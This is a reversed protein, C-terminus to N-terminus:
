FATILGSAYLLIKLADLVTVSNSSNVDAAFPLLETPISLGSCWRLLMLADVVSVVGDGNLDGFIIITYTEFVENTANDIVDVKTGTGLNENDPTFELRFDGNLQVCDNLFEAKTIGTNLGYIYEKDNDIVCGSNEVSSLIGSNPILKLVPRVGYCSTATYDFLFFYGNYNNVIGTYDPLFYPTRLWWNSNGAYPNGDNVYLGSSKSFDTGQAMRASDNAGYSASFGYATNIIEANSLLFLKDGGSSKIQTKEASSFATNFFNGNLWNRLPSLEWNSDGIAKSDLIKEALVLLEGGNNSLVRWEIPEFKFWYATNIFYGNDDQYSSGNPMEISYFSPTYQTFYVRKYKSGGYEVTNDASLTCLNLAAIIETQTVKTQPYSGFTIIDGTVYGNDIGTAISLPDSAASEGSVNVAKVTFSYATNQALGTVTYTTGTIPTANVKTSGNYVNYGTAETVADWSLDVTNATKSSSTLGTPAAPILPISTTVDVADSAASEGGANIAKVTFSYSTNQELGEVTYTTSTIPAANVKIAGKYVNYGISGTVADWSLDVTNATKNPSTLGVPANTLTTLALPSSSLYEEGDADLAKVLFSYESDPTLGTVTFVTATILADNVKTSGNYINYGTANAMSNWTLTVATSTKLIVSPLIDPSNLNIKFAPRVGRETSNVDIALAAYGTNGVLGASTPLNGPSRLWWYSSDPYSSSSPAWLGSSKSFDTGKGQRATDNDAYNSHFGYDTNMVDAYSLLFMKDSTINGGETGKWPNDENVLASTDIQSKETESFANNYFDNNLWSRLVCTEWTVNIKDPNYAKADLIQEAMVFLVGNSNSLVRWQIPEFKFWYVTNINYGNDAQFVNTTSTFYVRKYMADDYSVTNEVSLTQSNLATILTSDTVKSQPYSGYTIIDGTAYESSAPVALAAGRVLDAPIITILMILGLCVCLLRKSLMKM